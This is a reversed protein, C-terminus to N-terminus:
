CIVAAPPCWETCFPCSVLHLAKRIRNFVGNVLQAPHKVIFCFEAASASKPLFPPQAMFFRIVQDSIICTQAGAWACDPKAQGEEARRVASQQATSVMRSSVMIITDM